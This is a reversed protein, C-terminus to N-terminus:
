VVISSLACPQQHHATGKARCTVLTLVDLLAMGNIHGRVWLQRGASGGSISSKFHM